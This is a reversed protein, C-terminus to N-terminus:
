KLPSTLIQPALKWQFKEDLIGGVESNLVYGLCKVKPLAFLCKTPKLKLVVQWLCDFVLQFHHLHDEENKSFVLIDDIYIFVCVGILDSLIFNM